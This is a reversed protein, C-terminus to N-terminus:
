KRNQGTIDVDFVAYALVAFGIVVAPVVFRKIIKVAKEGNEISKNVTKAQDILNSIRGTHERKERVAKNKRDM